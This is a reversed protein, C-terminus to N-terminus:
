IMRLFNVAEKSFIDVNLEALLTLKDIAEDTGIDRLAYACKVALARDEDFRLYGFEKLAACYLFDVSSPFKFDQFIL